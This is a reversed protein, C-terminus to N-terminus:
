GVLNRHTKIAFRDTMGAVYDVARVLDSEPGAAAANRGADPIQHPHAEFHRVLEQVIAIARKREPEHEPRLYVRAFMFDRLEDFAEEIEPDMIVEGAELSGDVVAHVMTTVWQGHRDGLLAQVRFPVDRYSILEARMADMLDHTLYAIRDAFRCLLGEPAAPPPEVKWTHARIGDLTEWVLNLPELVSLVRVSQESHLWGGPVLEALADEGVHGFPSHGIDHGLCIAETLAENLGLAVAMSRGIQAVQLTHTLRTVFHDGEPNIFVQTKHALRRIANSHIIRDRDREFATRLPDPEEPRARGRSDTSRTALQGLERYEAIERDLRDSKKLSDWPKPTGNAM